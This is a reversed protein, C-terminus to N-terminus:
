THIPYGIINAPIKKGLIMHYGENQLLKDETIGKYILSNTFVRTYHVSGPWGVCVDWFVHLYGYGTCNLKM